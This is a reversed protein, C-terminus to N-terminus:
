RPQYDHILFIISVQPIIMEYAFQWMEACIAKLLATYSHLQKKRYVINTITKLAKNITWFNSVSEQYYFIHQEQKM